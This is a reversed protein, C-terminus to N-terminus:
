LLQCEKQNEGSECKQEIHASESQLLEYSRSRKRTIQSQSTLFQTILAQLQDQTAPENATKQTFEIMKQIFNSPLKTSPEQGPTDQIQQLM